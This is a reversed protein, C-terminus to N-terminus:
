GRRREIEDKMAQIKGMRKFRDGSTDRKLREIERKLRENTMESYRESYKDYSGYYSDTSKESFEKTKELGKAALDGVTKWFGMKEEM